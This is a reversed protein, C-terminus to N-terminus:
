YRLKSLLRVTEAIRSRFIWNDVLQAQNFRIIQLDGALQALAKRLAETKEERILEIDESPKFNDIVEVGTMTVDYIGYAVQEAERQEIFTLVEDALHKVTDSDLSM